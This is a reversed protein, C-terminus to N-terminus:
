HLNILILLLGVNCHQQPWLIAANHKRHAVLEDLPLRTGLAGAQLAIALAARRICSCRGVSPCGRRNVSSLECRWSRMQKFNPAAHTPSMRCSLLSQGNEAPSNVSSLECCGHVHVMM